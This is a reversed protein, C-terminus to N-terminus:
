ARARFGIGFMLVVFAVLAVGLATSSVHPHASAAQERRRRVGGGTEVSHSRERDADHRHAAYDYGAWPCLRGRTDSVRAAPRAAMPAPVIRSGVCARLIPVLRSIHNGVPVAVIAP